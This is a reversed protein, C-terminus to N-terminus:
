IIVGMGCKTKFLIEDYGFKKYKKKQSIISQYLNIIDKVNGPSSKRNPVSNPVSDLGGAQFQSDSEARSQGPNYIAANESLFVTVSLIASICNFLRRQTMALLRLNQLTTKM